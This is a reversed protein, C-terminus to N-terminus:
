LWLFAHSVRKDQEVVETLTPLKHQVKVLSERQSDLMSLNLAPACQQARHLQLQM